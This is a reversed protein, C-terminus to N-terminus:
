SSNEIAAQLKTVATTLDNLAAREQDIMVNVREIAISNSSQTVELKTVRESMVTHAEVFTRYLQEIAIQNAAAVNDNHSVVFYTASAIMGGAVVMLMLNQSWHGSDMGLFHRPQDGNQRDAAMTSKRRPGM